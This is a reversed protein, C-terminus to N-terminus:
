VFVINYGGLFSQQFMKQQKPIYSSLSCKKKAKSLLSPVNKEIEAM